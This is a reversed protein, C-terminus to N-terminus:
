DDARAVDKSASRARIDGGIEQASSETSSRTSWRSVGPIIHYTIPKPNLGVCDSPGGGTFEAPLLFM